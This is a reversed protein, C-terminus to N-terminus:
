FKPLTIVGSNQNSLHKKIKGSSETEARSVIKEYEKIDTNVSSCSPALLLSLAMIATAQALGYKDILRRKEEEQIENKKDSM